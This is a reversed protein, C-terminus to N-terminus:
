KALEARVKPFRNMVDKRLAAYDVPTQQPRPPFQPEHKVAPAAFRTMM